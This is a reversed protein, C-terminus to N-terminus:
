AGVEAVLSGERESTRRREMVLRTSIDAEMEEVARALLGNQEVLDRVWSRLLELEKQLIHSTLLALVTVLSLIEYLRSTCSGLFGRSGQYYIICFLDPPHTM